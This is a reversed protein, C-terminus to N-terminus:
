LNFLYDLEDQYLERYQGVELNGLTIEGISERKLYIVHHGIAKLMRKVQRNKGERISILVWSSNEYAREITVKSPLTKGDELEMGQRLTEIEEETVRGWVKARYTKWVEARPHVVRNYLDGDNTLLLLGETDLDLRGIPYIREVTDVLEIVTKERQDKVASIYGQPKNIMFYVKREARKVIKEGNFEIEDSDDVKIGPSALEGNVKIMGMELFKDIERRSGIGKNALYKNIRVKEM